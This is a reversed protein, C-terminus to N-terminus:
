DPESFQVPSDNPSDDASAPIRRVYLTGGDTRTVVVSDDVAAAGSECIVDWKKGAIMAKGSPRLPTTAVGRGGVLARREAHAGEDRHGSTESLSVRRGLGTRHFNKM